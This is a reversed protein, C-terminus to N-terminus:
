APMGHDTMELEALDTITKKPSVLEESKYIGMLTVIVAHFHEFVLRYLVITKLPTILCSM